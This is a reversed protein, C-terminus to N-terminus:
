QKLELIKISITYKGFRFKRRILEPKYKITQLDEVYRKRIDRFATYGRWNRSENYFIDELQIELVGEIERFAKETMFISNEMVLETYAAMTVELKDEDYKM